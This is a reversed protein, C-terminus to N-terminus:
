CMCKLEEPQEKNKLINESLTVIEINTNVEISSYCLQTKDGEIFATSM